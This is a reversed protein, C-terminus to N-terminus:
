QSGRISQLERVAQASRWLDAAVWALVVGGPLLARVGSNTFVAFAYLTLAGANILLGGLEVGLGRDGRWWCGALGIVGSAALTAAWATFVPGPLAGALSVPPPAWALYSIGVLASWALLLQEHPRHRGSVVVVPRAGTM